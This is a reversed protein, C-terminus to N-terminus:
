EATRSVPTPAWSNKCSPGAKVQGKQTTEAPGIRVGGPESGKVQARCEWRLRDMLGRMFIRGGNKQAAQCM